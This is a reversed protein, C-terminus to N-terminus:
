EYLKTFYNEGHCGNNLLRLRESSSRECRKRSEEIALEEEFELEYKGKKFRKM